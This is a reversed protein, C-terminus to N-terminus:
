YFLNGHAKEPARSEKDLVFIIKLKDRNFNDKYKVFGKVVRLVILTVRTQRLKKFLNFVFFLIFLKAM